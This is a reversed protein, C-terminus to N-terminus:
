EGRVKKVHDIASQPLDYGVKFVRTNDICWGAAVQNIVTTYNKGAIKAFKKINGGYYLNIHESLKM